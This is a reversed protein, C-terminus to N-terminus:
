RTVDITYTAGNATATGTVRTTGPVRQVKVPATGPQLNATLTVALTVPGTLAGTMTYTGSLSGTMTGNPVNKLNMDLTAPSSTAYTIQGDDSYDVLTETLHMSRNTSAGQDVQGSITMTGGKTGSATQAPINASSAANFGAFGLTIARDISGDISVYAQQATAANVPPSSSGGSCAVAFLLLAALPFRM